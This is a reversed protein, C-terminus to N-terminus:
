HSYAQIILRIDTIGVHEAPDARPGYIFHLLQKRIEVSDSSSTWQSGPIIFLWRTNWASRGALNTNFRTEDRAQGLEIQAESDRQRKIENLFNGSAQAASVWPNYARKSFDAISAKPPLPLFQDVVAWPTILEDEIRPKNTNERLVSEGVPLLYVFVSGSEPDTGLAANVGDLRIAYSRIKANRTLSFNSNGFPLEPGRGFFNRSDIETAFPIVIGPGYDREVSVQALDRVEGLDEIREVIQSELFARLKLDDDPFVQGLGLLNRRFSFSREGLSELPKNFKSVQGADELRNLVGQLGTASGTESGLRRERYIGALLDEGSSRADFEYAFARGALVVYRASIDFLARYNKLAANRFVRFSLDKWREELQDGQTRADLREREELILRGRTISQQLRGLAQTAVERAVSRDVLLQPSRRLQAKLQNTEVQIRVKTDLEQLEIEKWAQIRTREVEVDFENKLDGSDQSLHQGLDNTLQALLALGGSPSGVLAGAFANFMSGLFAGTKKLEALEELRETLKIQDDRAKTIIEVREIQVSEITLILALQDKIQEALDEIALEAQELRLKAVRLESMALQVQGPAARPRMGRRALAADDDLFRVLDPASESEIADNTTPDLDNDDRDDPSSLGFIEVLQQNQDARTDELKEKFDNFTKDSDRLRQGAQNASEFAKRANDLARSAADFVQEFHSRGSTTDLGSADIGFPVVNQVLGLPDLGAGATDLREQLGSVWGALEDLEILNGRHVLRADDTPTWHAATAYDFYAGIAGRRAWEGMSWARDPDPDSFLNEARPNASSERYDRRYLLEAVQAANRARAAGAEAIRRVTELGLDTTTAITAVHHFQSEPLGDPIETLLRIGAKVATLYHGYADGHGQPFKGAAAYNDTANYNSKYAPRAGAAANPPLRNYIAIGRKEGPNSPNPIEPYYISEDVWEAPEGPLERGRLLALEEDLLDEIGAIGRFAFEESIGDPQMGDLGITPDLADAHAENGLLMEFSHLERVAPFAVRTFFEEAVAAINLATGDPCGAFAVLARLFEAPQTVDQSSVRGTGRKWPRGYQSIMDGYGLTERESANAFRTTGKEIERLFAANTLGCLFVELEDAIGNEDVDHFRVRWNRGQGDFGGSYSNGCINLGDDSLAAISSAAPIGGGISPTFFVELEIGYSKLLAQLDVPGKGDVYIGAFFDIITIRGDASLGEPIRAITGGFFDTTDTDLTVYQPNATETWLFAGGPSGNFRGVIHGGTASVFMPAMTVTAKSRGLDQFTTGDLLRYANGGTTRGIIIRGDPSVATASASGNILVQGGAPTWRYGRSAGAVTTTGVVVDGASSIAGPPGAAVVVATLTPSRSWRVSELTGGGKPQRTGLIFMGDASVHTAQTQFQSGFPAGLLVIGESSNWIFAEQVFSPDTQVGVVHTGDASIGRPSAVAEGAFVNGENFVTFEPGAAPLRSTSGVCALLLAALWSSRVQAAKSRRTPSSSINM